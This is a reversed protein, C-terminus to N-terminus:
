HLVPEASSLGQFHQLLVVLLWLRCGDLLVPPLVLKNHEHHWSHVSHINPLMSVDLRISPSADCVVHANSMKRSLAFAGKSHVAHFMVKVECTM